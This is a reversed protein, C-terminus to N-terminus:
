RRARMATRAQIFGFAYEVAESIALETDARERDSVFLIRTGDPSFSCEADYGPERTLRVLDTGDLKATFIDMCPDFDWQYRRRRGTRRDEEAQERAQTETADINPDLHSSAFLLRTGDPSFWSCTTRGRGPSVRRPPAPKIAAADFDQVFIQYFPFGDPVAQYCIQRAAPSFYGEGAKPMGATVPLPPSLFTGELAAPATPPAANAVAHMLLLVAALLLGPGGFPMWQPSETPVYNCTKTM